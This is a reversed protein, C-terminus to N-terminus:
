QGGGKLAERLNSRPSAKFEGDTMVVAASMDRASASPARRAWSKLSRARLCELKSNRGPRYRPASIPAFPYSEDVAISCLVLGVSCTKSPPESYVVKKGTGRLTEAIASRALVQNQRVSYSWTLVSLITSAPKDAAWCRRICSTAVEWIEGTGAVFRRQM